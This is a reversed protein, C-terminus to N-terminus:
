EIINFKHWLVVTLAVPWGTYWHEHRWHLDTWRCARPFFIITIVTPVIHSTFYILTHNLITCTGNIKPPMFPKTYGMTQWPTQQSLVAQIWSVRGLFLIWSGMCGLKTQSMSLNMYYLGSNLSVKMYTGHSWQRYFPYSISDQPVWCSSYGTELHASSAINFVYKTHVVMRRWENTYTHAWYCGDNSEM